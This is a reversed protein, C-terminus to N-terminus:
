QENRLVRDMTASLSAYDIAALLASSPGQRPALRVARFIAVMGVHDTPEAVHLGLRRCEHWTASDRETIALVDLGIAALEYLKAPVSLPQDQALVLGIHSRALIRQTEDRPREGSIQLHEGVGLADATARFRQAVCEEIPGMHQIRAGLAREGPSEDLYNAFATLVPGIHRGGYMSGAHTLTLGRFRTRGVKPVEVADIGNPVWDVPLTPNALQELRTYPRTTCIIGDCKPMVFRRLLRQSWHALGTAGPEHRWSPAVPETWPDRLDILFRCKRGWSALWAALHVSHPPGSSVIVSPRVDSVMRRAAMAATSIWGRADDPLTPLQALERRLRAIGGHPAADSPITQGTPEPATERLQRALRRYLDNTTPWPNVRRVETGESLEVLSAGPAIVWSRWGRAALYKTFGAWRRGGIATDPPFHYSLVLLRREASLRVM